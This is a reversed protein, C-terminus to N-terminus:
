EGLTNAGNQGPLADIMEIKLSPEIDPEEAFEALSSLTEQMKLSMQAHPLMGLDNLIISAHELLDHAVTYDDLDRVILVMHACDLYTRALEPWAQMEQAARIAHVFHAGAQDWQEHMVAAVALVRPISFCWGSTLIVGQELVHALMAAPRETVAPNLVAEGLEIMACLPALSYTDPRVVDMLEDCLSAINETLDESRYYLVLQQFVRVLVQEFAGPAKM